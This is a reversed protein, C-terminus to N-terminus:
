NLKTSFSGHGQPKFSKTEVMGIVGLFWYHLELYTKLRFNKEHKNLADQIKTRLENFYKEGRFYAFRLCDTCNDELLEDQDPAIRTWNLLELLTSEKMIPVKIGHLSEHDQFGNKLFTCESLKKWKTIGDKSENTYIIGYQELYESISEQNFWEIVERKIALLNDDGYCAIRVNNEFATMNCLGWLERGAAIGLWSLAMYRWNTRSNLPTTQPNGSPNGGHTMYFENKALQITNITEDSITRRVKRDEPKWEGFEKYFHDVDDFYDEILEAHVTGDFRTFDGAVICDSFSSLYNYLETWEMSQPDIGLKCHSFARSAKIAEVFDQCYRRCLLSFDVPGIAFVRTSGSVIKSWPRREDKLCDVWVSEVREGRRAREEREAYRRMLESDKMQGEIDFLYAKGAEGRPRTNVYPWGPSTNMPLPEFADPFDPIGKVMELETLLQPRRLRTYTSLESRLYDNVQERHKLPFPKLAQGYKGIGVQLPNVRKELRQDNRSLVSPFTVPPSIEGHIATQIIQTADSQFFVQESQGIRGFHGQPVLNGLKAQAPPLCSGETSTLYKQLMERTILTAWGNIGNGCVHFGLIRGTLTTCHALLPAGCDGPNTQMRYKWANQIKIIHEYGAVDYKYAIEEVRAVDAERLITRIQQDTVVMTAPFKKVYGLEKESIFHNVISKHRHFNPPMDYVIADKGELKHASSENYEVPLWAGNHFVEWYDGENMFMFFHSPVLLSQGGFALGQMSLPPCKANGEFRVRYNSRIIRHNILDEVAKDQVHAVPMRGANAMIPAVRSGKTVDSYPGGEAKQQTGVWVKAIKREGTQIARITWEEDPSTVYGDEYPMDAYLSSWEKLLFEKKSSNALKPWKGCLGCRYGFARLAACACTHVATFLMSGVTKWVFVAIAVSFACRGLWKVAPIVSCVGSWVKMVADKLASLSSRVKTILSTKEKVLYSNQRMRTQFEDVPLGIAEFSQQMETYLTMVDDPTDNKMKFLEKEEDYEVHEWIRPDFLMLSPCNKCAEICVRRKKGAEARPIIYGARALDKRLKNEQRQHHIHARVMLEAVLAPYDMWDELVENEKRPNILRYRAHSHDEKMVFEGKMGAERCEETFDAEILVDRRRWLAPICTLCNPSPHSTNTTMFIFDSNFYEGKKFAMSLPYATNSKLNFFQKYQEETTFQSFDDFYVATQQTYNENFFKDSCNISCWRNHQPYDLQDMLTYGLETIVSSKGIGTAGYMSICFPDKRFPLTNKSKDCKTCIELAKRCYERVVTAERGFKGQCLLMNYKKGLDVARYVRRKFEPDYHIRDEYNETDLEDLFAAWEEVKEFEKYLKMQALYEASWMGVVRETCWEFVEKLQLWLAKVNNLALSSFNFLRLKESVSKVVDLTEKDGPISKFGLLGIAVSLTAGLPAVFDFLESEATPLENGKKSGYLNGIVSTAFRYLANKAVTTIAGFLTSVISVVAMTKVIINNDQYSKFATVLRSVDIAVDYMDYKCEIGLAAPLGTIYESLTTFISILPDSLSAATKSVTEVLTPTGNEEDDDEESSSLGLRVAAQQMIHNATDCARGAAETTQTIQRTARLHEGLIPIHDALGQAVPEEEEEEVGPEVRPPAASKPCIGPYLVSGTIKYLFNAADSMDRAEEADRVFQVKPAARLYNLAFDDGASQYLNMNIALEGQDRPTDILIVVLGTCSKADPTAGQITRLQTYPTYFPIEFELSSQIRAEGILVGYAECADFMARADEGVAAPTFRGYVFSGPVHFVRVTLSPLSQSRDTTWVLKYRLSGRWFTFLESFHALHTRTQFGEKEDFCKNVGSLVPSNAFSLSYEHDKDSLVMKNSYVKYYRRLLTKLNMANESMTSAAVSSLRGGGKTLSVIGEDTRSTVDQQGVLAQAVPAAEVVDGIGQFAVFDAPVAVEFDEGASVLVNIDIEASVSDPKSLRNLIYIFLYGTNEWNSHESETTGTSDLKRMRDCRLWPREAMFPVEFEVEHREQLDIVYTNTYTAGSFNVDTMGPAFAILLRGSHMQSAILQIKYGQLDIVYTNTYTAGSFNVDTMGPAFAILLRGSHMQSAILQIKYRLSGRWYKFGRTIYGLLTPVMITVKPNTKDNFTRTNYLNPCTPIKIIAVEANSSSSWKLTCLRTPIKMIKLLDMDDETTSILDADGVTYTGTALSLRSSKDIGEGFALSSVANPVWRSIEVPDTPKDCDSAGGVVSGLTNMGPAVLDTVMPLVSKVLGEVAAQAVPAGSGAKPLKVDHAFCPQHLECNDYSVWGTVGISQSSTTASGLRNFVALVLRGLSQWGREGQVTNFYTNMHVFPLNIVGSNSFGADLIVHPLSLLTDLNYLKDDYQSFQFAPIFAAILRGSHFKTGNIQFRITPHGRWYVFTAAQNYHPGLLTDGPLDWQKLITGQNQSTTWDGNYFPIPKKMIERVHWQDEQMSLGKMNPEIQSTVYGDDMVTSRQDTFTTNEEKSVDNQVDAQAVPEEEFEVYSQDNVLYRHYPAPKASYSSNLVKPNRYVFEVVCDECMCDEIDEHEEDESDEPHYWMENDYYNSGQLIEKIRRAGRILKKSYDYTLHYPEKEFHKAEDYAYYDVPKKVVTRQELLPKEPEHVGVEAIVAVPQEILVEEPTSLEIPEHVGVAAAQPIPQFHFEETMSSEVISQTSGHAVPPEEEEEFHKRMEEAYGSMEDQITSLFSFSRTFLFSKIAKLKRKSKKMQDVEPQLAKMLVKRAGEMQGYTFNKTKRDDSSMPDYVNICEDDALKDNGAYLSLDDYYVEFNTGRRSTMTRTRTSRKCFPLRGQNVFRKVLPEVADDYARWVINHAASEEQVRTLKKQPQQDDIWLRYEEEIAEVDLEDPAGLEHFCFHRDRCNVQRCGEKACYMEWIKQHLSPKCEVGEYDGNCHCFYETKVPWEYEKQEVNSESRPAEVDYSKIENNMAM